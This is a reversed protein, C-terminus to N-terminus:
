AFCFYGLPGRVFRGDDTFAFAAPTFVASMDVLANVVLVMVLPWIRIESGTLIIFLVIILPRVTYGYITLMMLLPRIANGVDLVRNSIAFDLNGRVLLSFILLAIVILFNRDRKQIYRDGIGAFVMGLLQLIIATDLIM